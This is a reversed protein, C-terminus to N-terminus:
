LTDEASHVRRSRRERHGRRRHLEGRRRVGRLNPACAGPERAGRGGEVPAGGGQVKHLPVRLRTDAAKEPGAAQPQEQRRGGRDPPPPHRKAGENHPGVAAGDGEDPRGAGHGAGHQPARLRREEVLRLAQHGQGRAHPIDEAHRAHLKPRHIDAQLRRPGAAHKVRTPRADHPLM